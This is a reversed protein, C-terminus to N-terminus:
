GHRKVTEVFLEPPTSPLIGHGLNVVHGGGRAISEGGGAAGGDGAARYIRVRAAEMYGGGHNSRFLVKLYKAPTPAPLTLTHLDGIPPLTLRGVPEFGKYAATTSVQFEVERAWNKPDERAYNDVSVDTVVAADPLAIVVEQPEANRGAWQGPDGSAALLNAAAWDTDNFQSSYSELRSRSGLDEYAPPPPADDLLRGMAQIEGAEMYGGGGNAVFSLKLYRAQTPAAFSFAQNSGEPRLELDGVHRFGRFPYTTSVHIEVSRVWNSNDERTYPNVVVDELEALGDGAFALIFSQPGGSRGAWGSDPSGDILHAAAWDTDNFQSSFSVLRGGAAAAALNTVGQAAVSGAILLGGAGVLGLVALVEALSSSFRTRM